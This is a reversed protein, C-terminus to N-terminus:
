IACSAGVQIPIGYREPGVHRGIWARDGFGPRRALGNCAILVGPLGFCPLEHASSALKPVHCEIM